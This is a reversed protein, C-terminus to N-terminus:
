EPRRAEEMADDSVTYRPAHPSVTVHVMPDGRFHEIVEGGEAEEDSILKRRRKPPEPSAHSPGACKLVRRKNHFGNQPVDQFFNTKISKLNTSAIDAM